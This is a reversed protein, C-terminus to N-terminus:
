NNLQNNVQNISWLIERPVILDTRGPIVEILPAKGPSCTMESLHHPFSALLKSDSSSFACFITQIANINNSSIIWRPVPTSLKLFVYRSSVKVLGIALWYCWFSLLIEIVGSFRHINVSRKWFDGSLFLLFAIHRWRTILKFYLQNSTRGWCSCTFLHYKIRSQRMYIIIPRGSM